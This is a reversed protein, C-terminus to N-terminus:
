QSTEVTTPLTEEFTKKPVLKLQIEFGFHDMLDVVDQLGVNPFDHRPKMKPILIIEKPSNM